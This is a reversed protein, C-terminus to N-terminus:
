NRHTYVSSSSEGGDVSYLGGTVYSAEDSALFVAVNAVEEPRGIRGLPNKKFSEVMDQESKFSNRLLPTDIPGPLLANVRVEDSAYQQAMCKTLMIIGAKTTCYAPSEPEPVVGLASALNIINGKSKRIFPIAYKCMWYVGKININLIKDLQEFTTDEISAQFYIGANNVLIDVEQINNFAEKVQEEKSVDVKYFEVEYNPKEIDFVIVNAGEKQFRETIAKGIGSAGGTVIAIKKDLKM